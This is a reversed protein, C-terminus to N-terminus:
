EARRDFGGLLRFGIIVRRLDDPTDTWEFRLSDDFPDVDFLHPGVLKQCRTTTPWIEEVRHGDYLGYGNMAISLPGGPIDYVLPYRTWNKVAEPSKSAIVTGSRIDTVSDSMLDMMYLAEADVLCALRKLTLGPLKTWVIHAVRAGM